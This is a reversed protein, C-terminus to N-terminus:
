QRLKRNRSVRSNMKASKRNKLGRPPLTTLSARPLRIPKPKRNRNGAGSKLRNRRVLLLIMVPALPIVRAPPIVAVILTAGPPNPLIAKAAGPLSARAAAAAQPVPLAPLTAQVGPVTLARAAAAVTVGPPIHPPAAVAQVIARVAAVATRTRPVAM